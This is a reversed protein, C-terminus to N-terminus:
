VSHFLSSYLVRERLLRDTRGHLSTLSVSVCEATRASVEMNLLAVSDSVVGYFFFVRCLVEGVNGRVEGRWRSDQHASRTM